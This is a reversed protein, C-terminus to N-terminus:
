VHKIRFIEELLEPLEEKGMDGFTFHGMGKLNVIKGGLADHFIQLSKKGDDEENDSTFMTIDKVRSKISEDIPYTYFLERALDGKDPIKWPAVLILKNIKQKSEGLWRVLFACGCSHGVLVTDESISLKEFEQRFMDYNPSWPNPMLPMETIIGQEELQKKLWPMWHKDYTREQPTQEGKFHSPCGHVIICDLKKSNIM